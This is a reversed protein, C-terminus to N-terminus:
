VFGVEDFDGMVFLTVEVADVGSNQWYWGHNGTFLAEVRGEDNRATGTEYSTFEDAGAGAKGDGHMDYYIAGGNASWAFLIPDGEKAAVKYEIGQGAELTFVVTQQRYPGAAQLDASGKDGDDALGTLGTLGGFRTPDIGYEAPLVFLVLVLAAALIAVGTAVLLKKAAPLDSPDPTKPESM